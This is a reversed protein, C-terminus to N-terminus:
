ASREDSRIQLVRQVPNNWTSQCLVVVSPKLPDCMMLRSVSASICQHQSSSFACWVASAQVTISSSCMWLWPILKCSVFGFWELRAKNAGHHQVKEPVHTVDSAFLWDCTKTLPQYSNFLSIIILKFANVTFFTSTRSLPCHEQKILATM